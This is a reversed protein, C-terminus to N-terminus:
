REANRHLFEIFEGLAHHAGPWVCEELPHACRSHDACREYWSDSMQQLPHAAEPSGSQCVLGSRCHGGALRMPLAIGAAQGLGSCSTSMLEEAILSNGEQRGTHMYTSCILRGGQKTDKAASVQLGHLVKLEKPLQKFHCAQRCTALSVPCNLLNPLAGRAMMAGARPTSPPVILPKRGHLTHQTDPSANYRHCGSCNQWRAARPALAVHCPIVPSVHSSVTM